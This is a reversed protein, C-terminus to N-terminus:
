EPQGSSLDIHELFDDCAEDPGVETRVLGFIRNDYRKGTKTVNMDYEQQSVHFTFARIAADLGTIGGLSSLPVSWDMTIRNEKALHLYLKQVQWTGYAEVSASDVSPDAAADYAIKAVAACVKHQAHGYEGNVDHTVVSSSCLLRTDTLGVTEPNFNHYSRYPSVSGFRTTSLM